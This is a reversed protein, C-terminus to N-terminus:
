FETEVGGGNRVAVEECFEETIFVPPKRLRILKKSIYFFM